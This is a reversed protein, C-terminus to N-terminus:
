RHAHNKNDPGRLLTQSVFWEVTAESHFYLKWVNPEAARKAQARRFGARMFKLNTRGRPCFHVHSNAKRNSPKPQVMNELKGLENAEEDRRHNSEITEQPFIHESM